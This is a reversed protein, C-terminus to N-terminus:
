PNLYHCGENSHGKEINVISLWTQYPDHIVYYMLSKALVRYTFNFNVNAQIVMFEYERRQQKYATKLCVDAFSALGFMIIM